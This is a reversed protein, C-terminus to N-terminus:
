FAEVRRAYEKVNWDIFKAQEESLRKVGFDLPKPTPRYQDLPRLDLGMRVPWSTVIGITNGDWPIEATPDNYVEFYIVKGTIHLEQILAHRAMVKEASAPLGVYDCIGALRAYCGGIGKVDYGQLMGVFEVEGVLETHDSVFAESLAITREPSLDMNPLVVMSPGIRGVMEVLLDPCVPAHPVKPSHDLLVPIGERSLSSYFDLYQEDKQAVSAYCLQTGKRCYKDLLLTPVIPIAEKKGKRYQYSGSM